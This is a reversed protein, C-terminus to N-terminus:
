SSWTRIRDRRSFGCRRDQASSEDVDLYEIRVVPRNRPHDDCRVQAQRASEARDHQRDLDVADAIASSMSKHSSVSSGAAVSFQQETLM